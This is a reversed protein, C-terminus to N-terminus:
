LTKWLLSRTALIPASLYLPCRSALGCSASLSCHQGPCPEPQSRDGSLCTSVSSSASASVPFSCHQRYLPRRGNRERCYFNTLRPLQCRTAYLVPHCKPREFLRIWAVRHAQFSSHKLSQLLAGCCTFHIFELHNELPKLQM